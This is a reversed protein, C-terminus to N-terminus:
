EKLVVDIERRIPFIPKEFRVFRLGGIALSTVNGVSVVAQAPYRSPFFHQLMKHWALFLFGGSYSNDVPRLSYKWESVNFDADEIWYFDDGIKLASFGKFDSISLKELIEYEDQRVVECRLPLRIWIDQRMMRYPHAVFPDILPNDSQWDFMPVCHITNKDSHCRAEVERYTDWAQCSAPILFVHHLLLFVAVACGAFAVMRSNMCFNAELWRILLLLSFVEVSWVARGGVGLIMVIGLAALLCWFLFAQDKFFQKLSYRRSLILMGLLALLLYFMRGYRFVKFSTLFKSLLNVDGGQTTLIRHWTGPSLVILAAGLWFSFILIWTQASMEKYHACMYCFCAFSVPLAFIEHTWGACFGLLAILLVQWWSYQSKGEVHSFFFFMWPLLLALPLM